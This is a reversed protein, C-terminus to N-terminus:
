VITWDTEVQNTPEVVAESTSPKRQKRTFLLSKGDFIQSFLPTNKEDSKHEKPASKNPTQKDKGRFNLNIRLFSRKPEDVTTEESQKMITLAEEPRVLMTEVTEYVQCLDDIKAKSLDGQCMTIVYEKCEFFLKSLVSNTALTAEAIAFSSSLVSVFLQEFLDSPSIDELSNLIGDVALDEDFLPTQKVAPLPKATEWLERWLNGETQMRTSLQGRKLSMDGGDFSGQTEDSSEADTWDPPSHWRIFDELICGPNAAKFAQMDSLLQSCGAGCSGTRLM